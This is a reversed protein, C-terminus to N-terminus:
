RRNAFIKKVIRRSNRLCILIDTYKLSLKVYIPLNYTMWKRKYEKVKTAVKITENEGVERRREELVLIYSVLTKAIAKKQSDLYNKYENILKDIILCMDIIKKESVNSTISGERKNYFYMKKKSLMIKPNLLFLHLTFDLDEYYIGEWFCLGNKMLFDRKIMYFPVTSLPVSINLLELGNSVIDCLNDNINQYLSEEKEPYIVVGSFGFVDLEFENMKNTLYSIANNKIWDDSDLFLVYKGNASKLGINRASSLGGNQKHIVRVLEYNEEYYDCIDPSADTSGDDVIIIECNENSQSLVSILCKELYREVNYVPIIVSVLKEM